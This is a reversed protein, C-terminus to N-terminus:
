SLAALAVLVQTLALIITVITLTALKRSVQREYEYRTAEDIAQARRDLQSVLEELGRRKILTRELPAIEPLLVTNLMELADDLRDRLLRTDSLTQDKGWGRMRRLLSGPKSRHLPNQKSSRRSEIIKTVKDLWYDALALRILVRELVTLSGHDFGAFKTKLLFRSEVQGFYKVGLSSQHARYGEDMKEVCVVGPNLAYVARFSRTSWANGLRHRAVETPVYRWGEDSTGLGYYPRPDNSVMEYVMEHPALCPNGRLEACWGYRVNGSLLPEIGVVPTLASRVAARVSTFESGHSCGRIISGANTSEKANEAGQLSRLIAIAKDVDAPLVTGEDCGVVEVSLIVSMAQYRSHRSVIITCPLTKDGSLIEIPDNSKRLIRRESPRENSVLFGEISRWQTDLNEDFQALLGRKEGEAIIATSHEESSPIVWAFSLLLQSKDFRM